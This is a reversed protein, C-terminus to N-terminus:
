RKMVQISGSLKLAWLLVTYQDDLTRLEPDEGSEDLSRIIEAMGQVQTVPDDPM